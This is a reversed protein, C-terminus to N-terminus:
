SKSWYTILQLFLMLILGLGVMSGLRLKQKIEILEQELPNDAPPVTNENVWELANNWAKTLAIKEAEISEDYGRPCDEYRSYAKDLKRKDSTNLWNWGYKKIPDQDPKRPLFICKWSQAQAAIQTVEHPSFTKLERISVEFDDKCLPEHTRDMSSEYSYCCLVRLFCTAEKRKMHCKNISGMEIKFVNARAKLNLIILEIFLKIFLKEDFDDNGQPTDKSYVSRFPASSVPRIRGTFYFYGRTYSHHPM